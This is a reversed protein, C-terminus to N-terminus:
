FQLFRMPDVGWRSADENKVIRDGGGFGLPRSLNISEPPIYCLHRCSYFARVKPRTLDGENHETVVALRGSELRVLTGVPYIGVCKVFSRVMDPHLHHASWEFIKQLALPAAMGEHYCRDSTLADYVDIIAAAQGAPSIDDGGLGYPYGSGDFREHHQMAIDMAIDSLDHCGSLIEGSHRVHTKMIDYEAATLKGPKNLIQPPVRMKGIDHVMGGIGVQMLTELPAKRSHEFALLLVGVSVSHFFTYDDKTKIGSLVTLATPNRLISASLKDMVDHLPGLELQVGLRADNMLQRVVKNAEGLLKEARPLESQLDVRVPPPMATAILAQIEQELRNSVEAKSPADPVSLGRSTDIYVEHLGHERLARIQAESKLLFRSRLFPHAMWGCDLDHIYMGPRLQSISVKQIRKDAM